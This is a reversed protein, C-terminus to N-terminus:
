LHSDAVTWAGLALLSTYDCPQNEGQKLKWSTQDYGPKSGGEVMLTWSAQHRFVVWNTSKRRGLAHDRSCCLNNNCQQLSSCSSRYSVLPHMETILEEAREWQMQTTIQLGRLLESEELPYKPRKEELGGKLALVLCQRSREFRFM